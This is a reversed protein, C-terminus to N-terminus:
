RDWLRARLDGFWWHHLVINCPWLVVLACAYLIVSVGIVSLFPLVLWVLVDGLRWWGLAVPGAVIAGAVLWIVFRIGIFVMPAALAARSDALAVVQHAIAAQGGGYRPNKSRDPLGAASESRAVDKRVAEEFTGRRKASPVAGVVLASCAVCGAVHEKREATLGDALYAEVEFPRICEESPYYSNEILERDRDYLGAVTVGLDTARSQAAGYLDGYRERARATFEAVSLGEHQAQEKLLDQYEADPDGPAWPRTTNRTTM